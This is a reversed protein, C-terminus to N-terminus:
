THHSDDLSARHINTPRPLMYETYQGSKIDLRAVRDTQMSGTWAEGNRDAIADYPESLTTPGKWETIRESRPDFMGIANGQYEGFWLRGERDIRGRRPRSDPTATRYVTADKTKADIKVINGASFDLLYANNQADSHIGYTGIRKGTQPD